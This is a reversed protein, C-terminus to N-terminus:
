YSDRNIKRLGGPSKMRVAKFPMMVKQKHSMIMRLCKILWYMFEDNLAADNFVDIIM